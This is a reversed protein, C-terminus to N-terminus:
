CHTTFCSIRVTTPPRPFTHVQKICHLQSCRIVPRKKDCHTTGDARGHGSIAYQLVEMYGRDGCMLFSSFRTILWERRSLCFPRIPNNVRNTAQSTATLCKMSIHVVTCRLISSLRFKSLVNGKHLQSSPWNGSCSVQPFAM